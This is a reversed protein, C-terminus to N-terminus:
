PSSVSYGFIHGVCIDTAFKMLFNHLLNSLLRGLLGLAAVKYDTVAQIQRADSLHRGCYNQAASIMHFAILVLDKSPHGTRDNQIVAGPQLDLIKQAKGFVHM